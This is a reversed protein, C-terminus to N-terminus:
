LPSQSPFDEAAKNEQISQTKQFIQTIRQCFEIGNPPRTPSLVFDEQAM